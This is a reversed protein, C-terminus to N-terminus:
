LSSVLTKGDQTHLALRNMEWVGSHKLARRDRAATMFVQRTARSAIAYFPTQDKPELRGGSMKLFTEHALATTSLTATADRRLLLHVRQQLSEHITSFLEGYAAEDGAAGRQTLLETVGQGPETRSSVM